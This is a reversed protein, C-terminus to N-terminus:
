SNPLPTGPANATQSAAIRLSTCSASLDRHGYNCIKGADSVHVTPM